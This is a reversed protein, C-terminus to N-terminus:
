AARKLAVTAGPILSPVPRGNLSATIAVTLYDLVHRNHQRLTAVTTLIREVYRSGTESDTGFSGKRWLM